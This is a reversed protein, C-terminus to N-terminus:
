IHLLKKLVKANNALFKKDGGKHGGVIIRVPNYHPIPKSKDESDKMFGKVIHVITKEAEQSLM